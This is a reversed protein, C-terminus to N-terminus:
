LGLKDEIAKLRAKLEENEKHLEDIAALAIISLKHYSVALKGDVESVAEPYIERLKQASTGIQPKEDLGDKWTYYVKPISNLKDFDIKVKDGFVKYTEDSLAFLEGNEMYVDIESVYMEDVTSSEKATTGLLYLQGDHTNLSISMDDKRAITEPIYKDDLQNYLVARFNDGSNQKTVKIFIDGMESHSEFQFIEGGNDIEINVVDTKYEYGLLTNAPITLLYDSEDETYLIDVDQKSYYRETDNDYYKPFDEIFTNVNTSLPIQTTYHTRNEIYGVKGKNANWDPTAGGGVEGNLVKSVADDVQAGSHKSKYAM